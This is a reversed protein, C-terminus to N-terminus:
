KGFLNFAFGLTLNISNIAQNYSSLRRGSNVVFNDYAIDVKPKTSFYDGNAKIAVTKTLQYNIGAGVQFGFGGGSSEKQSMANDTYDEYFVQFGALHTNVYGGLVRVDVSFKNGAPIRYYPGILVSLMHNNGKLYLTTSDTGSDEKYGDSLSQSGTHGFQSYGVLAGVGWNKNFYYTGTINFHGGTTAYGSKLDAYDTKSFNGVPIATGGNISLTVIKNAANQAFTGVTAMCAILILTTKKM